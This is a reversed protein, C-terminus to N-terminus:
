KDEPEGKEPQEETKSANKHETIREGFEPDDDPAVSTEENVATAADEVPTVVQSVAQLHVEITSGASEIIVRNEETDIEEITGYIGSQTMVEAGVVIGQRMEEMMKQRKRNNRFMLFILLAVVVLMMISLPDLKM